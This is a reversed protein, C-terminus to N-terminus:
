QNEGSQMQQVTNERRLLRGKVDEWKYYPGAVPILGTIATEKENLLVKCLIHGAENRYLVMQLNAAMPMFKWLPCTKWSEAAPVRDGACKLGIFAVLPLLASDHGFRLDACVGGTRVAEDARSAFDEAIKGAWPIIEGGLEVSNGMGAFYKCNKYKALAVLEDRIFFDYIDLGDLERELSQCASAAAFLDSAFRHVDGITERAEPTDKFLFKVIREPDVFKRLMEDELNKIRGRLVAADEIQPVIRAMCGDGTEFRFDLNAAAGKLAVAFNAMSALCRQKVSSQCRVTGEGSFAEPFRAVMRRALTKHEWAGLASISEYMGEHADKLARMRALLETGAWRLVGADQAKQLTDYAVLREKGNQFRSGHRGYHSVYFPKYGQPPSTDRIKRFEYRHFVGASRRFDADIADEFEKEADASTAIPRGRRCVGMNLANRRPPTEQELCVEPRGNAYDWKVLATSGGGDLNLAIDAGLSRMIAALDGYNAGLSVGEHRGELALVYLVSRDGSLGVVTRPHCSTDSVDHPKGDKLVIAFGSHALWADSLREPPIEPVIDSRGDKWVVFVGGVRSDPQVTDSLVVGDSVNLGDLDAYTKPMPEPCPRWPSTNFAVIMDLGRGGLGIPARANRMFDTVTARRTMITRNTYGPMPMGWRKDRGNSTFFLTRDSLNVRLACAKMLRPEDYSLRMLEVGDSIKEAASWDAADSIAAANAFAACAVLSFVLHLRYKM